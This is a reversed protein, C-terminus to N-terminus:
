LDEEKVGDDEPNRPAKRGVWDRELPMRGDTRREKTMSSDRTAHLDRQGVNEREEESESEIFEEEAQEADALTFNPRRAAEAAEAELRAKERYFM